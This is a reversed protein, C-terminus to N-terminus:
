SSAQRIRQQLQNRLRLLEKLLGQIKVELLKVRGKLQDREQKLKAVDDTM